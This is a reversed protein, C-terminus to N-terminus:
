VCLLNITSAHKLADVQKQYKPKLINFTYLKQTLKTTGPGSNM